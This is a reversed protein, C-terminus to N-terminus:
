WRGGSMMVLEEHIAVSEPVSVRTGYLADVLGALLANEANFVTEKRMLERWKQEDLKGTRKALTAALRNNIGRLADNLERRERAGDPMDSEEVHADHVMVAAARHMYRLSGAQALLMVAGSASFADVYTTVNPHNRLEEYIEMAGWLSGGDSHLHVQLEDDRHARVDRIIREARIGPQHSNGIKAFINIRTTPPRGGGHITGSVDYGDYRM